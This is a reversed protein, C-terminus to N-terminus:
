EWKVPRDDRGKLPPPEPFVPLVLTEPGTIPSNKPVVLRAGTLYYPISFDVVALNEETIRMSGWIGDYRGAILGNLLDKPEVLVPIMNKIGLQICVEWALEVDFGTLQNSQNLYSFPPNDGRMAFRLEDALRIKKWSGDDAQANDRYTRTIKLDASVDRGFYHKSISEYIGNEIIGILGRNVALRLSDDNRKFAVSVPEQYLINGALRLDRFEPKKYILNLAILGDIIGADAQGQTVAKLVGAQDKYFKIEEVRQFEETKQQHAANHTIAM